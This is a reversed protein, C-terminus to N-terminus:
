EREGGVDSNLVALPPPNLFGRQGDVTTAAGHIYSCYM